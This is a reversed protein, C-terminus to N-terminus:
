EPFQALLLRLGELDSVDEMRHIARHCNPCLVAFDKYPDFRVVEGDKLASLPRLHHADVMGKALEGYTSSPDTGCAFCKSGLLKKVKRSHSPNREIQRHQRYRKAQEFSTSGMEEEAESIIEDEPAWGGKVLALRYLQLAELLDSLLEEEAPLMSTQYEKSLIHGAQYLESRWGKAGLNISIDGLRSATKALRFRIVQGRRILENRTAKKKITKYLTTCGQNLTLYLRECGRSMIYAVYIGEQVTTTEAPDLVAVWPTHTWESQGASGEIQFQEARSGLALKIAEPVANSVHSAAPAGAFTGDKYKPEKPYTEIWEEFQERM